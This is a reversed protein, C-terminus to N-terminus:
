FLVEEVDTFPTSSFCWPVCTILSCLGLRISFLVCCLKESGFQVRVGQVSPHPSCNEELHLTARALLAGVTYLSCVGVEWSTHSCLELVDSAVGHRFLALPWRVAWRLTLPCDAAAWRFADQAVHGTTSGSSSPFVDLCWKFVFCTKFYVM